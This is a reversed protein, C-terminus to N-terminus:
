PKPPLPGSTSRTQRYPRATKYLALRAQMAEASAPDNRQQARELAKHEAALAEPFWGAEAYAAALTDLIDARQGGSLRNAQQALEVAEAGNRLSTEPCTARLWALNKQFEANGPQLEVAKRYHTLAQDNRGQGASVLALSNHAAANDPQIELARRYHAVAEDLQGRCALANGFQCHAEANDPQVALAAQCHTMAEDFQGQRALAAGLNCHTEADDPNIDLAARYHAMAEDLRGALTLANGLRCHATADEPNVELAKQFQGIAEDIQGRNALVSGLNCRAIAYSPRLRTAQRFHATAEDLRGLRRLAVGLNNHAEPSNPNIEMAQQYHMITEDLRHRAALAIGLNYHAVCNGSTCALAHNWLTESNCWFSTQRWACGMLAALALASGIGCLWRRYPWSRCVDAAGWVLAVCLGIQPLYTYRDARAQSGAQLLGIVPVLMGVYWLWGVLLYPRRRWCAMAVASICLLVLLAGIAKWVSLSDEPHPYFAALGVPFFFQGLYAVYSVLANGIRLLIPLTEHIASAKGQVRVTAVCFGLTVLLLPVKEMVPQWRIPFRGLVVELFGAGVPTGENCHPSALRRCTSDAFRGLPWYDLLLLVLPLTVLMPKAMLGLVFAVLLLLYRTGSFSSRVYWVYAGLTAVFCLGSLVDKREAIWAVSEVRLPHVAFLAAVLASPWLRGTMQRLVLFLLIATAAHLLVSTLHHGGADLGYIQCDLMHSLGTLPHWNASHIHTFVWVTGRVTLGHTIQPNEYVYQDDDFNVFEHRTTQGFILGVALALLGCVGWSQYSCRSTM